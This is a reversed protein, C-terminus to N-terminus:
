SNADYVERLDQNLNEARASIMGNPECRDPGEIIIVEQIYRQIRKRAHQASGAMLTVTATLGTDDLPVANCFVVESKYLFQKAAM